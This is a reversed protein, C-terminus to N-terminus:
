IPKNLDHKLYMGFINRNVEKGDDAVKRINRSGTTPHPFIDRVNLLVSTQHQLKM